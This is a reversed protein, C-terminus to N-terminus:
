KVLKFLPSAALESAAELAPQLDDTSGFDKLGMLLAVVQSVTMNLRQCLELAKTIEDVTPAGDGGKKESGRGFGLDKRAKSVQGQLSPFDEKPYKAKLWEEVNKM